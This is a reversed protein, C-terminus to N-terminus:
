YKKLGTILKEGRSSASANRRPNYRWMRLQAGLFSAVLSIQSASRPPIIRIRQLLHSTEHRLCSEPNTQPKKDTFYAQFHGRWPRHIDGTSDQSFFPFLFPFLSFRGKTLSLFLQCDFDGRVFCFDDRTLLSIRLSLLLFFGPMM